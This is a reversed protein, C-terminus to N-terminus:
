ISSREGSVFFATLNIVATLLLFTIGLFVTIGSSNMIIKVLDTFTISIDQIYDSVIDPINSKISWPIYVFDTIILFIGSLLCIGYSILYKWRKILLGSVIVSLISLICPIIFSIKYVLLLHSVEKIETLQDGVVKATEGALSHLLDNVFSDNGSDSDSDTLSVDELLSTVNNKIIDGATNSHVASIGLFVSALLGTILLITTFLKNM